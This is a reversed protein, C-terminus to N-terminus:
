QFYYPMAKMFNENRAEVPKTGELMQELEQSCPIALLIVVHLNCTAVQRSAVPAEAETRCASPM